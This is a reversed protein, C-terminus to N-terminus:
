LSNKKIIHKIPNIFRQFLSLDETIIESTGSMEEGLELKIGYNTILGDPFKVNLILVKKNNITTPVKSITMIEVQIMGYQMFPYNDFKVNVKQGIRIKGAGQMPLYIKGSIGKNMNPIITLVIEGANINQNEQWFSTLAVIGRIPSILLYSREWETIQSLLINFNGIISNEYSKVIDEKDQNLEFVSQDAQLISLKMNIISSKTNEFQQNAALFKTQSQEIDTQSLVGLGFLLSDRIYSRKSLEYQESSIILQRESLNLMLKQQEIQNKIFVIKKEHYNIEMFNKFDNYSKLFQTYASQINGLKLNVPFTPSNLIEGSSILKSFSNCLDKLIKYSSYETPNEIISVVENAEVSDEDKVFLKELRGSVKSIINAPLIESTVTIPATIVDPYKFFSSGVLIILVVLFIVGIGWRIIWRPPRSLIDNVEESRIEINYDNKTAM